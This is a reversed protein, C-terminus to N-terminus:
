WGPGRLDQGVSSPRHAVRGVQRSEPLDALEENLTQALVNYEGPPLDLLGHIQAEVSLEDVNGGLALYRIWIDRPSLGVLRYAAPVPLEAGPNDAM